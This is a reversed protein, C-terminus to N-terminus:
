RFLHLLASKPLNIIYFSSVRSKLLPQIRGPDDQEEDSDTLEIEEYSDYQTPPFFLALNLDLTLDVYTLLSTFSYLYRLYSLSM